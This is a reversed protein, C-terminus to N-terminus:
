IVAVALYDLDVAPNCWRLLGILSSRIEFFARCYKLLYFKIILVFDCVLDVTTMCQVRVTTMYQLHPWSRDASGDRRGHNGDTGQKGSCQKPGTREDVLVSVQM